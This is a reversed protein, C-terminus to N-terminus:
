GTMSIKWITDADDFPGEAVEVFISSESNTIVRRYKFAPLNAHKNDDINEGLKIRHERGSEWTVIEMQGELCIYYVSKTKKKQAHWNIVQPRNHFIIMKQVLEKNSKHLCYRFQRFGKNMSYIKLQDIEKNTLTNDEHLSQWVNDKIARSREKINLIIRNM